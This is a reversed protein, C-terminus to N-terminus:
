FISTKREQMFLILSDSLYCVARFHVKWDSARVKKNAARKERRGTTKNPSIETAWPNAAQWVRVPISGSLQCSAWVRVLLLGHSSLLLSLGIHAEWLISAAQFLFFPAAGFFHSSL